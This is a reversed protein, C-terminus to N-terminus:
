EYSFGALATQRYMSGPHVTGIFPGPVLGGPQLHCGGLDVDQVSWGAPTQWTLHGWSSRVDGCALVWGVAPV